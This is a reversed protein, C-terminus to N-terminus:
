SIGLTNENDKRFLDYLYGRKVLLSKFSGHEIIRGKDIVIIEDYISLINQNLKHTISIVTADINLLIDQEINLSSDIDLAATWEDLLLINKEHYLARAIGIRQKQGGSINKADEEIITDIGMPLSTIVDLLGSKNIISNFLTEDFAKNLTINDKISKNFLYINQQVLSIDNCISKTDIAKISKNDIYIDGTYNNYYGILLRFLTSKGSGSKGVILYKKNKYFQFSFNNLIKEKELYSFSVNKFEIVNHFYDAKKREIKYNNQTIIKLLKENIIKSSKILTIRQVIAQLPYTIGNSLQIVAILSGASLTGIIVFYGSIIISIVLTSIGLTTSIGSFIAQFKLFKLRSLELTMNVNKVEKKTKDEMNYSHITSYGDLQDKLIKTYSSFNDSVINQLKQLPKSFLYPVLFLLLGSILLSITVWPNIYLLVAITLIFITIDGILEIYSSIYQNEIINVDNTLYSIYGATGAENFSNYDRSILSNFIDNKYEAMSKKLFYAKAVNKLYEIIGFSLFYFSTFLIYTFFGTMDQTTIYDVLKQLVIAIYVQM